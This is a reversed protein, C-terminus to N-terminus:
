SYQFRMSNVGSCHAPSAACAASRLITNREDANESAATAKSCFMPMGAHFTPEPSTAEVSRTPAIAAVPLGTSSLLPM